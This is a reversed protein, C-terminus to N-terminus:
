TKSRQLAPASSLAMVHIHYFPNDPDRERQFALRLGDPSWYGEGARRGEVTLRRIRTLFQPEGSPGAALQGNAALEISGLAVALVSLRLVRV